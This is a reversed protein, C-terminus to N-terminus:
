EKIQATSQSHGHLARLILDVRAVLDEEIQRRINAPFGAAAEEPLRTLMTRAETMFGSMFQDVQELTCVNSELLMAKHREILAESKKKDAEAVLKERRATLVSEDDIAANGQHPRLTQRWKDIAEFKAPLTPMGAPRWKQRVTDKHVNFHAAVDGYTRAVGPTDARKAM